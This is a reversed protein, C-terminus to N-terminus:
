ATGFLAILFWHTKEPVILGDTTRIGGNWSIMLAEFHTIMTTGATHVDNAGSVLDLNDVFAFGLLSDDQKSIPTTVNMGYGKVKCM